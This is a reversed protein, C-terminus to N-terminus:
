CQFLKFLDPMTELLTGFRCKCARCYYAPNEPRIVCGGLVIERRQIRELFESDKKSPSSLNSISPTGYTITIIDESQCKPCLMDVVEEVRFRRKHEDFAIQLMSVISPFIAKRGSSGVSRFRKRRRSRHSEMHRRCARCLRRHLVSQRISQIKRDAGEAAIAHLEM